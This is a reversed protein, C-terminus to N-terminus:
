AQAVIFKSQSWHDFSSLQPLDYLLQETQSLSLDSSLSAKLGQNLLKVLREALGNNSSHYPASRTHKVGNGSLFKAFAKSTFRPGDDSIIHEPLAHMTFVQRLAEITKEVMTSQMVM